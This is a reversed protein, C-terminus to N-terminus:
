SVGGLRPKENSGRHSIATILRELAFEADRGGGKLQWETEAALEIVGALDAERWLRADKQAREVQWPAMGVQQALQAASGRVGFVRAMGRLKSNIAALLPIPEDGNALAHRLLILAEATNGSLAVEAITFAGAEVKGGYYRDVVEETIQEGADSVLQQCAAALEALSGDVAAVVARVAQPAAQAGLRRFETNAFAMRESEKKLEACQVEIGNGAGARIADLVAKARNGGAHRLVLTTDEVPAQLYALADEIFADSCIEVGVVRILRPEGFLSPSALTFLEGSTYADAEIDSLEIEPHESSLHRRIATMAREALFAEPGTILVVPEPRARSSDVQEIALKQASQSAPRRSRATSM